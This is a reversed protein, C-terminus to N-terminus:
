KKRQCIQMVKDMQGDGDAVMTSMSRCGLLNKTYGVKTKNKESFQFTKKYLLPLASGMLSAVTQLAKLSM